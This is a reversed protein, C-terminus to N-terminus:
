PVTAKTQKVKEISVLATRSTGICIDISSPLLQDTTPKVAPQIPPLPAGQGRNGATVASRGTLEGYSRESVISELMGNDVLDVMPPALLADFFTVPSDMSRLDRIQRVLDDPSQLILARRLAIRKLERLCVDYDAQNPMNVAQAPQTLAFGRHIIVQAKDLNAERKENLNAAIKTYAPSSALGRQLSSTGLPWVGDDFVVFIFFQLGTNTDLATKLRRKADENQAEKARKEEFFAAREQEVAEQRNNASTRKLTLQGSLSIPLPKQGDAYPQLLRRFHAELQALLSTMEAQLGAEAAQGQKSQLITEALSLVKVIVPLDDTNGSRNNGSSSAGGLIQSLSLYSPNSTIERIDSSTLLGQMRKEVLLATINPSDDPLQQLSRALKSLAADSPGVDSATASLRSRESRARDSRASTMDSSVKYLSYSTADKLRVLNRMADRDGRQDAVKVQAVVKRIDECLQDHRSKVATQVGSTAGAPPPNMIKEMVDDLDKSQPTCVIQCGSTSSQVTRIGASIDTSLAPYHLVAILANTAYAHLISAVLPSADTEVRIEDVGLPMEVKQASIRVPRLLMAWAEGPSNTAQYWVAALQDVSSATEVGRVKMKLQGDRSVIAGLSMLKIEIGGGSFNGGSRQLESPILRGDADIFRLSQLEPVPGPLIIASSARDPPAGRHLQMQPLNQLDGAQCVLACQSFALVNFIAQRVKSM